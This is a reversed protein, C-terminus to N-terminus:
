RAAVTLNNKSTLRVAQVDAAHDVDDSIVSM